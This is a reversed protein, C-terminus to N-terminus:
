RELEKSDGGLLVFVAKLVLWLSADEQYHESTAQSVVSWWKEIMGRLQGLLAKVSPPQYHDQVVFPAVEYTCVPGDQIWMEALERTGFVGVVISEGPPTKNKRYLLFVEDVM